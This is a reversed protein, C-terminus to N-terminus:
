FNVGPQDGLEKGRAFLVSSRPCDHNNANNHHLGSCHENEECKPVFTNRSPRM